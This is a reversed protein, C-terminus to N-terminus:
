NDLKDREAKRQAETKYDFIYKRSRAVGTSYKEGCKRGLLQEIKAESLGQAALIDHALKNKKEVEAYMKNIVNLYSCFVTRTMYSWVKKPGQSLDAKRLARMLRYLAESKMDQKQEPPYRNFSRSSLM